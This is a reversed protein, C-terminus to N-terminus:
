FPMKEEVVEAEQVPESEAASVLDWKYMSLNTYYKENYESGKLSFQATIEDGINLNEVVRTAVKKYTELKIPNTYDGNVVEVIVEVKTFDNKFTQMEGIKIVKGTLEYSM